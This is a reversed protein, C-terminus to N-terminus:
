VLGQLTFNWSELLVMHCSVIGRWVWTCTYIHKSHWMTASLVDVLSSSLSCPIKTPVIAHSPICGVLVRIEILNQYSWGTYVKIPCYPIVHVGCNNWDAYHWQLSGSVTWRKIISSNGGTLWGQSGCFKWINMIIMLLSPILINIAM